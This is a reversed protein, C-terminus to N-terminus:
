TWSWLTIYIDLVVTSETINKALDAKIIHGPGRRELNSHRRAPIRYHGMKGKNLSSRMDLSLNKEQSIKTRRARFTKQADEKGIRSSPRPQRSERRTFRRRHKKTKKAM